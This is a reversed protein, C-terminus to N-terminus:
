EVEIERGKTTKREIPLRVELVGNRYTASIDEDVVKKPFRFTRHYRRKRGREEDKHEASINLRGDHWNVEIEEKEFGPMEVTLVFEDEEEYLETEEDGGSRFVRSPIDIGSMWDSTSTTPLVM